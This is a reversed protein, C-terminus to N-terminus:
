KNFIKLFINEVKKVHPHVLEVYKATVLSLKESLVPEVQDNWITM